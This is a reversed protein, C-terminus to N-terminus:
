ARSGDRSYADRNRWLYGFREADSGKPPLGKDRGNVCAKSWKDLLRGQAFPGNCRSMATVIAAADKPALDSKVKTQWIREFEKVVSDAWEEASPRDPKERIAAPVQPESSRDQGQDTRSLLASPQADKQAVSSHDGRPGNLLPPYKEKSKEKLSEKKIEQNGPLTCNTEQVNVTRDGEVNVTKKFSDGEVNVTKKFSDGEVNVTKKFSDGEVNVTKKFSDGEVNVTKKFSDGHVNVTKTPRIPIKWENIPRIGYAAPLRRTSQSARRIINAQLLNELARWAQNRHIGTAEAIFSLAMSHTPRQFGLTFRIVIDLVAHEVGSLHAKAMTLLMDDPTNPLATFGLKETTM